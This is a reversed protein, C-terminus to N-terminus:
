KRIFVGRLLEVLYSDRAPPSRYGIFSLVSSSKVDMFQLIAQAVDQVFLLVREVNLPPNQRTGLQM